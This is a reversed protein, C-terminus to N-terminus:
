EDAKTEEERSKRYALKWAPENTYLSGMFALGKQMEPFLSHHLLMTDERAQAVHLKARRLYILDYMGNQFIKPVPAALIEQVLLWARVEAEEGWYHELGNKTFPVVLAQKPSVAFGIETIQGAKTEIDCALATASPLWRAAWARIEELTPDTLVWREPRRIEPFAAERRAKMLDALVIPRLAWNRLVAAPHYTPLIKYDTFVGKAITGRINSIGAVGLMAWSATRGLAIVLNRPHFNIEERLRALEPLYAPHLYKGQALSALPYGDGALKKTVCLAEINNDPPQLNLTNTLLCDSRKIGAQLLLKTLEQGSAGVFPTGTLAEDRGWAEGVIVVPASHSGSTHSFPPRGSPPVAPPPIAIAERVATM